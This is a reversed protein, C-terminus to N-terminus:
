KQWETRLTKEREPVLTKKLRTWLQKFKIFLLSLFLSHLIYIATYLSFNSQKHETKRVYTGITQKLLFQYFTSNANNTSEKRTRRFLTQVLSATDAIIWEGWTGNSEEIKKRYIGQPNELAAPWFYVNLQILPALPCKGIKLCFCLPKPRSKSKAYVSSM